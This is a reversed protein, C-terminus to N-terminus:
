DLLDYIFASVGYGFFFSVFVSLAIITVFEM